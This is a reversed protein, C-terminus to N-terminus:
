VHYDMNNRLTTQGIRNIMMGRIRHLKNFDSRMYNRMDQNAASCMNGFRMNWNEHLNVPFKGNAVDEEFMKIKCFMECAPEHTKHILPNGNDTIPIGIYNLYITNGDVIRDPFGFLYTGNNGIKEILSNSTTPDSYVDLLRFLFCPLLVMGNTVIFEDAEYYFMKDIDTIYNTEVDACWEIIDALEFQKQKYIRKLKAYIIEPSTYLSNDIVGTLQPHTVM